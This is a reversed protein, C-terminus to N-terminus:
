LDRDGQNPYNTVRVLTHKMSYIRHRDEFQEIPESPPNYMLYQRLYTPGFRYVEGRWMGVEFEHHAYCATPDYIVTAGITLNTSANEEWMDGHILSPKLERGDAQLPDLVLKITKSKFIGFAEELEPYSGNQAIEREFLQNLLTTMYVRWSSEWTNNMEIPGQFTSRYFGFKGEPSRSTQHLEALKSCFEDPEPMEQQSLDLFEMYFFYTDSLEYRGWNCPRPFFDPMVSHLEKMGLYEAEMM